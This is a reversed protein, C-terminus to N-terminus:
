KSLELKRVFIFPVHYEKHQSGKNGSINLYLGDFMIRASDSLDITHTKGNDVYTCTIREYHETM